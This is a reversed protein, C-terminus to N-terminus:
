NIADKVGSVFFGVTLQKPDIDDDIGLWVVAAKGDKQRASVATLIEVDVDGETKRLKLWIGIEKM